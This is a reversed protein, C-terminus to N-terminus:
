IEEWKEMGGGQGGKEETVQSYLEYEKAHCM